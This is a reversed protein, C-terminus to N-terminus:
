RIIIQIDLEEGQKSLGLGECWLVTDGDCLVLLDDRLEAPIKQENLARRLPKKVNRVPFTFFDGSKRTRFVLKQAKILSHDMKAEINKGLYFFSMNKDFALSFHTNETKDTIIRLTNQACVAKKGNKLEVAGGSKLMSVILEIHRREADANNDRCLKAIAAKLVAPDNQLLTQINFGYKEKSSNLCEEASKELFESIEAADRSFALMANEAQPNIEKLAPIVNHRIKNRTYSDSMNTSDTVYALSNAACYSEIEDRTVTILPRIINGRKPPIAAAGALSSGRCLNFLLTEANDSATHATAVKANLESSLEDFFKYRENRGCLEASIKQEACLKPVDIHKVFLKINYNECLIKCFKEDNDAEAGRIGHNLHAAYLTINYKEILSYLVNLLTVSDAGGSLAIIVSDNESLLNYKKIAAQAKTIVDAAIENRSM